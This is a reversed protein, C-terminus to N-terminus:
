ENESCSSKLLKTRLEKIITKQRKIKKVLFFVLVGLILLILFTLM